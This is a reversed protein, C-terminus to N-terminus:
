TPIASAPNLSPSRLRSAPSQGALTMKKRFEKDRVWKINLSELM